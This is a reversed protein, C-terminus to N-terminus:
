KFRPTLGESMANTIRHDFFTLVNHLDRPVDAGGDGWPELAFEDALLVPNWPDKSSPVRFLSSPLPHPTQPAPVPAEPGAGWPAASSFLWSSVNESRVTEM